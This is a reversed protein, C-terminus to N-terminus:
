YLWRYQLVADTASWSRAIAYGPLSELIFKLWWFRERGEEVIKPKGRIGLTSAAFNVADQLTGLEDVLKLEKAQRGTYIRGDAIQLVEPAPLHRGQAVAEVFQHYVDDVLTQFAQREEPRLPRTPNGSDKFPGSTIATSSIGIKQLLAEINALQVIVGISGTITGPNAFIRETACAIYYGGSAALSGMSAVMLKGEGRLRKVTAYIEQSSAVGGGPSDIRLVLAKITPDAGYKQLQRVAKEALESSIVGEIPVIAVKAGSDAVGVEGSLLLTLALALLFFTILVAMTGVMGWVLPRRGTQM